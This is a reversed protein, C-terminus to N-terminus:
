LKRFIMCNSTMNYSFALSPHLTFKAGPLIGNFYPALAGFIYITYCGLLRGCMTCRKTSRRQGFDHLLSAYVRFGNFNAPTGWVCWSIEATPCTSSINSNLWNKKHNDLQSSIARCLQAITRLHRNKRVKQSRYKWRAAHLVNWVQM